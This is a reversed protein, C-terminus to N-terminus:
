DWHLLPANKKLWRNHHKYTPCHKTVLEWFRPDHHKHRCHALEHIIVSDIVEMPAMVLRWNFNLTNKSGCSGWRTTASSLKVNEFQVDMLPAYFEARDNFVFRARTKYWRKMVSEARHQAKADLIFDVDWCFPKKAQETICLKIPDGLYLFNEGHEFRRRPRKAYAAKQKRVSREIWAQKERVFRKLSRESTGEPARLLVRGNEQVELGITKRKSRILQIDEFKM